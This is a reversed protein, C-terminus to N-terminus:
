VGKEYALVFRCDRSRDETGEDCWSYGLKLEVRHEDSVRHSYLLAISAREVAEDDWEGRERWVEAEVQEDQRLKGWLGLKVRGLRSETSALGSQRGFGCRLNLGGVVPGGVEVAERRLAMPRGKYEDDDDTGEPRQEVNLQLHYRGAVVRRHAFGASNVGDEGGQRRIVWCRYGAFPMDGGLWEPKRNLYYEEAEEFEHVTSVKKAWDPLTGTPVELSYRLVAAGTPRGDASPPAGGGAEDEPTCAPAQAVKEARLRVGRWEHSLAVRREGRGLGAQAGTVFGAQLETKAGLRAVAQYKMESSVEPAGVTGKVGERREVTFALWPLLQRDLHLFAKRKLPSDPSDGRSEEFDLKLNARAAGKGIGGACAYKRSTVLGAETHAVKQEASLQGGLLKATLALASEQKREGGSTDLASMTAKLEAEPALKLAAGVSKTTRSEDTGSGKALFDASLRLPGAPALNLHVERTSQQSSDEGEASRLSTMALRLGSAGGAGFASTFEVRQERRGKGARGLWRDWEERQQSLSAKLSSSPGLNLTLAHSTNSTTLGNQESLVDDRRLTDHSSTLSLGSALKWTAGLNMGRGGLARKVLEAEEESLKEGVSSLPFGRGVDVVHGTLELPGGRYDLRYLTAERSGPSRKGGTLLAIADPPEAKLEGLGDRGTARGSRSGPTEGLALAPSRARSFLTITLRRGGGAAWGVPQDGGHQSRGRKDALAIVLRASVGTASAPAAVESTTDGEPLPLDGSEASLAHCVAPALALLCFGLAAPLVRRGATARDRHARRPCFSV